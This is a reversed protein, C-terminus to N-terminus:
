STVFWGAIVRATDAKLAVVKAASMEDGTAVVLKFVITMLKSLIVM